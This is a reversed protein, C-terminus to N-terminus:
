PPSISPTTVFVVRMVVRTVNLPQKVILYFMRTLPTDVRCTLGSYSELGTYDFSVEHYAHTINFTTEATSISKTVEGTFGHLCRVPYASAQFEFQYTRTSTDILIPFYYLEIYDDIYTLSSINIVWEYIGPAVTLNGTNMVPSGYSQSLAVRAPTGTAQFVTRIVLYRRVNYQNVVGELSISLCTANAEGSCGLTRQGNASSAHALLDHFSTTFPDEPPYKSIPIIGSIELIREGDKEIIRKTVLQEPQTPQQEPKVPNPISVALLIILLTTSAIILSLRTKNM